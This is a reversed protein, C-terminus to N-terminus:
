FVIWPRVVFIGEWSDANGDKVQALGGGKDEIGATSANGQESRWVCLRM